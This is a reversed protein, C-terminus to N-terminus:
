QERGVVPYICLLGWAAVVLCAGQACAWTVVDPFLASADRGVSVAALLRRPSAVRPQPIQGLFVFLCLYYKM